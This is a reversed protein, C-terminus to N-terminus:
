VMGIETEILRTIKIDFFGCEKGIGTGIAKSAAEKAAWYGAASTPNKALKIEDEDLFRKLAKEGFKEIMKEVRSVAIIDIGIM